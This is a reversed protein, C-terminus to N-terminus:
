GEMEYLDQLIQYAVPSIKKLYQIDGMFYEEFCVAFYERISTVSYPSIFLGMALTSLNAYGVEKYLYTDIEKDYGINVKFIPSIDYNHAKLTSYLRRRKATFEKELSGDYIITSYQEEVAHALEHIIDDIIDMEDDQENTLYIAGHEFMANVERSVLDEFQGIYIVDVGKMFSSPIRSSIYRIVFPMDIDNVFNNKIYIPIGNLSYSDQMIKSKNYSEQIWSM